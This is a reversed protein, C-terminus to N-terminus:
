RDQQIERNLEGILESAAALIQASGFGARHLERFFSRALIKAVAEPNRYALREAEPAAQSTEQLLALQAFRSDLLHQLHRLQLHKSLFLAMIELLSLATEDFPAADKGNAANIVGVIRGEISIPACILSSGLGAGRRAFSAFESQRIDTVLLAKGSLLVRGSIGEGRRIAAQLAANPLPGHHAHISMCPEAEGQHDVLMVSCSAAGILGAALVVQDRLSGQEASHALSQQLAQLRILPTPAAQM